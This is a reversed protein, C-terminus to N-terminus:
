IVNVSEVSSFLFLIFSVVVNIKAASTFIYAFAEKLMEYSSCRKLVEWLQDTLETSERESAKKIIKDINKEEDKPEDEDDSEQVEVFETLIEYIERKLDVM